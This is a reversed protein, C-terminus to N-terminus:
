GSAHMQLLKVSAQAYLIKDICLPGYYGKLTCMWASTQFKVHLLMRKTNQEGCLYLM